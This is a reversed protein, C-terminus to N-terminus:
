FVVHYGIQIVGVSGDDGNSTFNCKSSIKSNIHARNHFPCEM